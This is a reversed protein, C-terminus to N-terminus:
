KIKSPGIAIFHTFVDDAGGDLIIREGLEGLNQPKIAYEPFRWGKFLCMDKPYKKVADIIVDGLLDNKVLADLSKYSKNVGVKYGAAGALGMLGIVLIKKKNEKVFTKIENKKM